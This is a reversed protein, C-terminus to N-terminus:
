LLDRMRYICMGGACTMDGETLRTVLGSAESEGPYGRCIKDGANARLPHGLIEGEYLRRQLLSGVRTNVRGTSAKISCEM